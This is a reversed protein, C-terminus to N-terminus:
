SGRHDAVDGETGVVERAGGGEVVCQHDSEALDPDHFAFTEDGPARVQAMGAQAHGNGVVALGGRGAVAGHHRPRQPRLLFYVGEVGPRQRKAAAVLTGRALAPAAEVGGIDAVEVAVLEAGEAHQLSGAAAARSCTYEPADDG